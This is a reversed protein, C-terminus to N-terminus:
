AISVYGPCVPLTLNRRASGSPANRLPDFSLVTFSQSDGNQEPHPTDQGNGVDVLDIGQTEPLDLPIWSLEKGSIHKSNQTNPVYQGPPLETSFGTVHGLPPYQGCIELEGIGHEGPM